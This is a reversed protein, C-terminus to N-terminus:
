FLVGVGKGVVDVLLMVPVHFGDIILVETVPMVAYVNVGFAPWHAIGVVMLTLTFATELLVVLIVIQM